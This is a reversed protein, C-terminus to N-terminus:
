CELNFSNNRPAGDCAITQCEQHTYYTGQGDSGIKCNLPSSLDLLNSAIGTLRRAERRKHNQKSGNSPVWHNKVVSALSLNTKQRTERPGRKTTHNRHPETRELDQLTPPARKEKARTWGSSLNIKPKEQKAKM